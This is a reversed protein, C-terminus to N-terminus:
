VPHRSALIWVFPSGLQDDTSNRPKYRSRGDKWRAHPTILVYWTQSSSLKNLLYLQQGNKVGSQVLLVTGTYRPASAIANEDMLIEAVGEDEMDQVLLSFSISISLFLHYWSIITYRTTWMARRHQRGANSGGHRKIMLTQRSYLHAYNFQNTM